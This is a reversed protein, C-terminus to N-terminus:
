ARNGQLKGLIKLFDEASVYGEFRTVVAGAANLFLVTPLGRVLSSPWLM